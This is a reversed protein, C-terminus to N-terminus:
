RIGNIIHSKFPRDLTNNEKIEIENKKNENNKEHLTTKNIIINDILEINNIATSPKIYM